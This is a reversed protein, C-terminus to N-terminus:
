FTVVPKDFRLDIVTPLTGKIRFGTMLTQLTTILSPEDSSQTFVIDLNGTHAKIVGDDLVSVTEVPMTPEIGVLFALGARVSRDSVEQGIRLVSLPAYIKPIGTDERDSDALIIGRADIRVRRSPTILLAAASRLTPVIVLTHPYKKEFRIDALIPNHALIEARIKAAPFFLLTKPLRKEDVNVQINGGVVTIERIAFINTVAFYVGLSIFLVIVAKM